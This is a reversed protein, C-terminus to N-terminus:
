NDKKELEHQVLTAILPKLLNQTLLERLQPEIKELIRQVVADVNACAAADGNVARPRDEDPHFNRPPNLFPIEALAERSPSCTPMRDDFESSSFELASDPMEGDAAINEAAVPEALNEAAESQASATKEPVRSLFSYVPPIDQESAGYILAQQPSEDILLPEPTVRVAPPQILAPDQSLNPECSVEALLDSNTESPAVSVPEAVTLEFESPAETAQQEPIENGLASLETPLMPGPEDMTSPAAASVTNKEPEDAFFSEQKEADMPQASERAVPTEPAQAQIQSQQRSLEEVDPETEVLANGVALEEQDPEVARDSLDEIHSTEATVPPAIASSFWDGQSPQGSTSAMLDMWHSGRSTFSSELEGMAEAIPVEQLEEDSEKSEVIANTLVPASEECASAAVSPALIEGVSDEITAVPEMEVVHSEPQPEQASTELSESQETAPEVEETADPLCIQQQLVDREPLTSDIDQSFAHRQAVEQTIEFERATRRWDSTTSAGDFEEQAQKDSDLRSAQAAASEDIGEDDLGRRGTGFGFALSADDASTDPPEPLTSGEIEPTMEVPTMQVAAPPAPPPPAVPVQKPKPIEVAIKSARELVSTVMAILPDPPIFPKKLIGDAGVRRAEKEDLPDFAGVLLIVPIHSYKADKKVWECLEYGNRVPMFIDALILDPNLDPIRRVAAEGNGVATVEIGREHFALAVM